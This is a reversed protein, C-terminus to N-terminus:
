DLGRAKRKIKNLMSMAELIDEPPVKSLDDLGCSAVEEHVDVSSPDPLIYKSLWERARSNGKKADEVARQCIEKWDDVTCVSSLTELYERERKAAPRGPGGSHGPAFRGHSDRKDLANTRIM